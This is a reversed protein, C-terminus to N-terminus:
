KLLWAFPEGALVEEASFQTWALRRFMPLRDGRFPLELDASLPMAAAAGIWKPMEYFVPIGALLAKVGAGSAWVVAAYANKLDPGPDPRNKGPHPRIRVPRRTRQSIARLTIHEWNQPMAIGKEGYGRQPMIIIEDGGRKWPALSLGLSDWRDPSGEKWTGAGNHHGLAIAFFEAGNRDRGIYGNEVVIVRAGVAEFRRAHLDNLPARNWIVLVDDPNPKATPKLDVRYGCRELGRLFCYRRYHPGPPLTDYAVPRGM